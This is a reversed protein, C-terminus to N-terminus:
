VITKNFFESWMLNQQISLHNFTKSNYEQRPVTGNLTMINLYNDIHEPAIHPDSNYASFWLYPIQKDAIMNLALKTWRHEKNNPLKGKVVDRKVQQTFETYNKEPTDWKHWQDLLTLSRVTWTDSEPECGCEWKHGTRSNKYHFYNLMSKSRKPLKSPMEVRNAPPFDYLIMDPESQMRELCHYELAHRLMLYQTKPSQPACAWVTVDADLQAIWDRNGGGTQYGTCFSGGFIWIKKM